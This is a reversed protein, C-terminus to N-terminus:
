DRQDTKTAEGLEVIRWNLCGFPACPRARNVSRGVAEYTRNVIMHENISCLLHLTPAPNEDWSIAAAPWARDIDAEIHTQCGAQLQFGHQVLAHQRRSIADRRLTCRLALALGV